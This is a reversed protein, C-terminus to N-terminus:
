VRGSAPGGFDTIQGNEFFSPGVGVRFYPGAGEPFYSYTQAQAVATGFCVLSAFIIATCQKKM